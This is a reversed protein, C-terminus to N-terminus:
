LRLFILTTKIGELSCSLTDDLIFVREVTDSVEKVFISADKISKAQGATHDPAQQVTIAVCLLLAAIDVLDTDPDQLKDYQSLMEASTNTLSTMPFLANQLTMWTSALSTITLMDERSPMLQRLVSTRRYMHHSPMSTKSAQSGLIGNDFLPLLHSPTDAPDLNLAISDSDDDSLTSDTQMQSSLHLPASAETPVSGLRMELSQVAKRLGAVNNELHGIRARSTVRVADSTPMM